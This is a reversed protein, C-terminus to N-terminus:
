PLQTNALFGTVQYVILVRQFVPGGCSHQPVYICTHVHVHVFSHMNHTSKCWQFECITHTHTNSVYMNTPRCTYQSVWHCQWMYLNTHLLNSHIPLLWWCLSHQFSWGSTFHPLIHLHQMHSTLPECNICPFIITICILTHTHTRTHTHAHTHTHTCAYTCKYTRTCGRYQIDTSFCAIQVSTIEFALYLVLLPLICVMKLTSYASTYM